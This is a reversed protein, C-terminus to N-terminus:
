VGYRDYNYTRYRCASINNSMSKVTFSVKSVTYFNCLEYATGSCNHFRSKCCHEYGLRVYQFEEVPLGCAHVSYTAWPQNNVKRTKRKKVLSHSVSLFSLQWPM